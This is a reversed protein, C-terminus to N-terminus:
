PFLCACNKHQKISREHAAVYDKREKDIPFLLFFNRVQNKIIKEPVNRCKEHARKQKSATQLMFEQHARQMSLRSYFARERTRSSNALQIDLYCNFIIIFLIQLHLLFLM